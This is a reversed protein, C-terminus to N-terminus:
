DDFGDREDRDHGNDDRSDDNDHSDNSDHNNDNRDRSDSDDNDHSARDDMGKDDSDHENSDSDEDEKMEDKKHEADEAEVERDHEKKEQEEEEREKEWKELNKEIAEEEDEAWEETEEVWSDVQGWEKSGAKIEKVGGIEGQNNVELEQNNTIAREQEHNSVVVKGEKVAVETKKTEVKVRFLTGKVGAVANPTKVEFKTIESLSNITKVWIQGLNLKLSQNRLYRSQIKTSSKSTIKIDSQAGILVRTGNIFELEVRSNDTTQVLDGSRLKIEPNLTEWAWFKWWDTARKFKVKGKMGVVKAEFGTAVQGNQAYGGLQVGLLLLILCGLILKRM